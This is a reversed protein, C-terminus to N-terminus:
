EQGKSRDFLNVGQKVTQSYYRIMMEDGLRLYEQQRLERDEIDNVAMFILAFERVVTSAVDVWIETRTIVQGRALREMRQATEALRCIDQFSMDLTQPLGLDKKRKLEEQFKNIASVVLTRMAQAIMADRENMKDVLL